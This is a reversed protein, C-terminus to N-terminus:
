EAAEGVDKRIDATLQSLREILALDHQSGQSALRILEELKDALERYYAAYGKSSSCM